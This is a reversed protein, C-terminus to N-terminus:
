RSCCPETSERRSFSLINDLDLHVNTRKKRVEEHRNKHQALWPEESLKKIYRYEQYHTQPIWSQWITSQSRQRAVSSWPYYFQQIDYKLSENQTCEGGSDISCPKASKISKNFPFAIFAKLDIQIFPKGDATTEIPPLKIPNSFCRENFPKPHNGIRTM